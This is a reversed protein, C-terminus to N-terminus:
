RALTELTTDTLLRIMLRTWFGSPMYALTYLRILQEHLPSASIRWVVSQSESGAAALSSTSRSGVPDSPPSVTGISNESHPYSNSPSCCSGIAGKVILPIETLQPM